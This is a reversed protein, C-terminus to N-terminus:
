QCRSGLVEMLYDTSIADYRLSPDLIVQIDCVDDPCSLYSLHKHFDDVNQHQNNNTIDPAVVQLSIRNIMPAVTM